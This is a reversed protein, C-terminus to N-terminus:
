KNLFRFLFTGNNSKIKELAIDSIEDCDRHWFPRVSRTIALNTSLYILFMVGYIQVATKIHLMINKQQMKEKLRKFM